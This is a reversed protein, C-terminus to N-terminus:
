SNTAVQKMSLKIRGKNDVDLVAVKVSQGESLHDMVKDVRQSTIQSIHLLGDRGPVVEVFAGYDMINKVKGQYVRGVEVDTTTTLELIRAAAAEVGEQSDASIKVLGNDDIDISAGTDDTIARITSGGRGIVSRIKERPIEMNRLVPAGLVVRDRSESLVKAMEGLIHNRAECAQSLAKEMITENVGDVKIDMQLATVGKVTGAVKFDMDGLHDEDGLIDTLVAYQSDQKILGMAVGAVPAKVPVGADMLALSAGCVSAMSSSGNSETIESVVRITYPFQDATPLVAEIARRALRGHGIERRKPSSLFGIEGVCYPPFNYHLMFNDKYTGILSETIAADKPSGLTATAISQTEGRTFLASGHAGPLIGVDVSIARVDRSSRGDIRPEGDLIRTRVISREIEDLIMDLQKEDGDPSPSNGLFETHAEERVDALALQREQKDSVRYADELSTLFRERIRSALQPSVVQPVFNWRPRGVADVMERIQEVVVQNEQHGFLVAGLMRDESLERAESEVMLVADRSSAVIMNLASDATEKYTPNLVYKGDVFGVRAAGIPGNFPVGSLSLAASAGIMAPIDPSNDKDASMVTCIVQIEHMFGKPFLPRVPRDILRSILTESESPRGERRFFGGPIRGAAYSKEQYNVTLPLFGQNQGSNKNAVVTCLVMTGGLSAMVAATAQRAIRGTELVVKQNGYQFEQKFSKLDHV